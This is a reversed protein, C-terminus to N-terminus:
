AEEELPKFNVIKGNEDRVHSYGFPARGGVVCGTRAKARKGKMSRERIKKIEESGQWGKIVLSIDLESEIKGIDLAYVEIGMRLWNRIRVLLDVIDRSLRDVQTVVIADVDHSKIVKTLRKGQPRDTVPTAGSQDECFEAIVSYGLQEIYQRCIELQSPLSYGKDAQDDTSVRAYIAAKKIM